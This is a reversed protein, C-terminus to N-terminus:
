YSSAQCIRRSPGWVMSRGPEWGSSVFISWKSNKFRQIDSVSPEKTLVEPYANNKFLLRILIANITVTAIGLWDLYEKTINNFESAATQYVRTTRGGGSIIVFRKGKKIESLLFARFKKLYSVEIGGNDSLHPVILSGGLAIVHYTHKM